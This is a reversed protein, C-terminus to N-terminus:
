LCIKAPSSALVMLIGYCPNWEICLSILQLHCRAFPRMYVVNMIWTSVSLFHLRSFLTSQLFCGTLSGFFNGLQYNGLLQALLVKMLQASLGFGIETFTVVQSCSRSPVMNWKTSYHSICVTCSLPTGVTQCRQRKENYIRNIEEVAKKVGDKDGAVTLEDKMVSPPPVNIHAGAREQKEKM